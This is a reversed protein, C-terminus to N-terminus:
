RVFGIRDATNISVMDRKVFARGASHSARIAMRRALTLRPRESASQACRYAMEYDCKYAFRVIHVFFSDSDGGAILSDGYPAPNSVPTRAASYPTACEPKNVRDPRDWYSKM